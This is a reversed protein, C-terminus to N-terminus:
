KPSKAQESRATKESKRDKRAPPFDNEEPLPREAPHLYGKKGRGKMEKPLSTNIVRGSALLDSIAGRLDDRLMTDALASTELETKSYLWNQKFQSILFNEVQDACARRKQDPTLVDELMYSFEYGQRALFILPRGAPAYSVKDRSLVLIEKDKHALRYPLPATDKEKWPRVGTVMRCGDPLASGSRSSYQDLPGGRANAKGIHHVFRVCCGVGNVIRRAASILAQENDNVFREGAGFSVSPDFVIVVPKISSCKSVIHDALGTTNINNKRDQEALRCVEGRVDWILVRSMVKTKEEATLHMATIIRRLRAILIERPDEATVILTAGPTVMELGYLSRGLAVHVAEYLILTTKGTGGAANLLAVDAYLYEDVIVRPTLRASNMEEETLVLAALEPMLPFPRAEPKTEKHQYTERVSALAKQITEQGYTRGDAFHSENWKSRMLGSTRFLRDIQESDQTWFAIVRCLALDAESQSSYGSWDGGFLAKFKAGNEASTALNIIEQDDLSPSAGNGKPAEETKERPKFYEEHLWDLAEQRETVELATGEIHDGTVTLYRPSSKDYVEIRKDITGKGCRKPEGFCFIRLRGSPSRECYTGKFRELIAKSPPETWIYDIDLGTLEGGLVIGIGSFGGRHFTEVAQMFTAWTGPNDTAARRGTRSSYPPKTLRGNADRELKWNVWQDSHILSSPINEINLTAMHAEAGLGHNRSLEKAMLPLCPMQGNGRHPVSM